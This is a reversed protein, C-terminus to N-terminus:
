KSLLEREYNKKKKLTCISLIYKKLLNFEINKESQDDLNKNLIKSQNYHIIYRTYSSLQIGPNQLILLETEGNPVREDERDKVGHINLFKHIFM